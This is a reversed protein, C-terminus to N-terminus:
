ASRGQKLWLYPLYCGVIEALATVVFLALTKLPEMRLNHENPASAFSQKSRLHSSTRGELM